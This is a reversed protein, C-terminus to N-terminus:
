IGSTSLRCVHAYGQHQRLERLERARPFWRLRVAKVPAFRGVPRRVSGLGLGDALGTPKCPLGEHRAGRAHTSM